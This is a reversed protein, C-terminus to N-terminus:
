GEASKRPRGPKREWESLFLQISSVRWVPGAALEAAPAPFGRRRRLESVRQRSVGFLEAVEAAGAFTEAPQELSRELFRVTQLEALAIGEHELGVEACAQLLISCAQELASGLVGPEINAAGGIAFSAAPGGALGGM